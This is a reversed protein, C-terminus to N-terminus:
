KRQFRSNFFVTATLISSWLGLYVQILWVHPRQLIPLEMAIDPTRSHNWLGVARIHLLKWFCQVMLSVMKDGFIDPYIHKATQLVVPVWFHKYNSTVLNSLLDRYEALWM